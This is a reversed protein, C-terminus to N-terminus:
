GRIPERNLILAASQSNTRANRGNTEALTGSMQLALGLSRGRSGRQMKRLGSGSSGSSGVESGTGSDVLGRTHSNDLALARKASDSYLCSARLLVGSDLMKMDGMLMEVANAMVLSPAQLSVRCCIMFTLSFGPDSGPNM